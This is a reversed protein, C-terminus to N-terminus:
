QPAVDYDGLENLRMGLKDEDGKSKPRIAYTIMPTPIAPRPAMWPAKEDAITDGTKTVKLKAVAVLDGPLAEAVNERGKGQVSYLQGIHERKDHNVSILNSDAT